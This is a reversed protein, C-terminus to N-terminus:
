DDWEDGLVYEIEDVVDDRASDVHFVNPDDDEDDGDDAKDGDDKLLEM